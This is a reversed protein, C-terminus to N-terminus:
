YVIGNRKKFKRNEWEFYEENTIEYLCADSVKGTYSKQAHHRVGVYHGCYCDVFHDYQKKANENQLAVIWNIVNCGRKTFLYDFYMFCAKVSMRSYKKSFNIARFGSIIDLPRNWAGEFYAIIEKNFVAVFNEHLWTNISTELNASFNFAGDTFFWENEVEFSANMIKITLEQNVYAAPVLEINM